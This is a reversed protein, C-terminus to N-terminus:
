KTAEEIAVEFASNVYLASSFDSLATLRKLEQLIRAREKNFPQLKKIPGLGNYKKLVTDIQQMIIRTTKNFAGVNKLQQKYFNILDLNLDAIKQSM